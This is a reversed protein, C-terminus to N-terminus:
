AELDRTMKELSKIRCSKFRQENPFLDVDSQKRQLKITRWHTSISTLESTYVQNQKKIICCLTWSSNPKTNQMFFYPQKLNSETKSVCM